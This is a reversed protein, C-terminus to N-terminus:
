QIFITAVGAVAFALAAFLLGFGISSMALDRWSAEVMSGRDGLKRRVVHYLLTATAVALWVAGAIIFPNM